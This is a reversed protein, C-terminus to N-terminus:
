VVEMHSRYVVRRKRGIRTEEIEEVSVYVCLKELDDCHEQSGNM